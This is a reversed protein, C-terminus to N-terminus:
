PAEIPTPWRDQICSGTILSLAGCGCAGCKVHRQYSVQDALQIDRITVGEQMPCNRCVEARAAVLAEEAATPPAPPALEHLNAEVTGVQKGQADVIRFAGCAATLTLDITGLPSDGGLNHVRWGTKKTHRFIM